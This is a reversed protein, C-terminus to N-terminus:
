SAILALHDPYATTGFDAALRAGGPFPDAIGAFEAEAVAAIAQCHTLGIAGAGIVAIRM